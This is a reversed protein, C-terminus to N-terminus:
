RLRVVPSKAITGISAWVRTRPIFAIRLNGKSATPRRYHPSLPPQVTITAGDMARGKYLVTLRYLRTGAHNVVHRAVLRLPLRPGGRRAPGCVPLLLRSSRAQRRATPSAYHAAAAAWARGSELLGATPSYIGYWQEPDATTEEATLWTYPEYSDINCDSRALADTLLSLDAARTMDDALLWGDGKRYWGIETVEIPVRRGIVSDLGARFHRIRALVENVSRGYPHIAVGDVQQRLEPHAQVMEDLYAVEARWLGGM